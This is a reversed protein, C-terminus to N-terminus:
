DKERRVLTIGELFVSLLIIGGWYRGLVFGMGFLGNVLLLAKIKATMWVKSGRQKEYYEDCPAYILYLLESILSLLGYLIPFHILFDTGFASIFVIAGTILFCGMDSKAHVGGACKRVAAFVIVATVVELTKGLLTGILIYIVAKLLSNLILEIGYTVVVEKEESYNQIRGMKRGIVGSLEHTYDRM